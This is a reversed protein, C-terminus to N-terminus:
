RMARSVGEEIESVRAERSADAAVMGLAGFILIVGVILGGTMLYGPIAVMIVLVKEFWSLREFRKGWSTLWFAIGAFFLVGLSILQAFITFELLLMLSNGDLSGIRSSGNIVSPWIYVFPLCFGALGLVFTLFTPIAIWNNVAEYEGTKYSSKALNAEAWRDLGGVKPGSKFASVLCGKIEESSLSCDYQQAGAVWFGLPHILMEDSTPLSNDPNPQEVQLTIQYNLKSKGEVRVVFWSLSWVGDPKILTYANQGWTARGVDDLLAAVVATWHDVLTRRELQITQVLIDRRAQAKREAEQKVQLALDQEQKATKLERRLNM